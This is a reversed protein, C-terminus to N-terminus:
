AGAELPLPPGSVGATASRLREGVRREFEEVEPAIRAYLALAGERDTRGVALFSVSTVGGESILLGLKAM